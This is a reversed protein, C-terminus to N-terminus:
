DYLPCIPDIQSLGALLEFISIDRNKRLIKYVYNAIANFRSGGSCDMMCRKCRVRKKTIDDAMKIISTRSEMLEWMEVNPDLLNGAKLLDFPKIIGWPDMFLNGNWDIGISHRGSSLPLASLHIDKGLILASFISEISHHIHIDYMQSRKKIRWINIILKAYDQSSPVLDIHEKMRGVPMCRHISYNKVGLKDLMLVFKPLLNLNEKTPVSSVELKRQLDRYRIIESTLLLAKEYPDKVNTIKDPDRWKNHYYRFGDISIEINGVYHRLELIDDVNYVTGNTCFNINESGFLKSSYKIIDKFDPRLTPEGGGFTIITRPFKKSKSYKHIKDLITIVEDYSLEFINAHEANKSKLLPACVACHACNLNCYRTLAFVVGFFEKGKVESARAELYERLEDYEDERLNVKKM